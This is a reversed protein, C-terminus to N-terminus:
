PLRTLLKLGQLYFINFINNQAPHIFSLLKSLSLLLQHQSQNGKISM